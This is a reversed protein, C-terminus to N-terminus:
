WLNKYEKIADFAEKAEEKDLEDVVFVIKKDKSKQELWQEFKTELYASSNDIQYGDRVNFIKQILRSVGWEFKFGASLPLSLTGVLGLIKLWINESFIGLSGLATGLGILPLRINSQDIALGIQTLFSYKSEDTSNNISEKKKIFQGISQHYLDELESDNKFKETLFSARILSVLFERGTNPNPSKISDRLTHGVNVFIPVIEERIDSLARHVFSTKGIGRVSSVLITSSTNNKIAHKLSNM